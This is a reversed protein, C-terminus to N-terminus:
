LYRPIFVKENIWSAVVIISLMCVITQVKYISLPTFKLIKETYSVNTLFTNGLTIYFILIMDIFSCVFFGLLLPGYGLSFMKLLESLEAHLLRISETLMVIDTQTWEGPVPVLGDPLRKWFNNVTQFRFGLNSLYFCATIIVTFDIINPLNFFYM